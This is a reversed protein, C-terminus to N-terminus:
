KDRKAYHEPTQKDTILSEEFAKKLSEIEKVLRQETVVAQIQISEIRENQLQLQKEAEEARTQLEAREERLTNVIINLQEVKIQEAQLQANINIKFDLESPDNIETETSNKVEAEGQDTCYCAIYVASPERQHIDAESIPAKNDDFTTYSGEKDVSVSYYHGGSPSGRHSIWGTLSYNLGNISLKRDIKVRLTNKKVM